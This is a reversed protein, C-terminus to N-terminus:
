LDQLFCTEIMNAIDWSIISDPLHIKVFCYIWRGSLTSCEVRLQMSGEKVYSISRIFFINKCPSYGSFNSLNSEIDMYCVCRASCLFVVLLIQLNAIANNSVPFCSMTSGTADRHMKRLEKPCDWSRKGFFRWVCITRHIQKLKSKADASCWLLRFRFHFIRRCHLLFFHICMGVLVLLIVTNAAITVNGGEIATAGRATSQWQAKVKWHWHFIFSSHFWWRASLLKM